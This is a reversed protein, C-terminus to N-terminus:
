IWLLLFNRQKQFSPHRSFIAWKEAPTVAPDSLTISSHHWEENAMKICWINFIEDQSLGQGQLKTINNWLKKDRHGKVWELKMDISKFAMQQTLFLDINARRPSHSSNYSGDCKSIAEKNDCVASLKCKCYSYKSVMSAMIM